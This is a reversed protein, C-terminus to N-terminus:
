AEAAESNATRSTLFSLLLVKIGCAVRRTSPAVQDRVYPTSHEARERVVGPQWQHPYRRRRASRCSRPAGAAFPAARWGDRLAGGRLLARLQRHCEVRCHRSPLTEGRGGLSYACIHPLRGARFLVQACNSPVRQRNTLTSLAIRYTSSGQAPRIERFHKVM